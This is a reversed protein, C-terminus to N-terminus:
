KSEGSKARPQPTYNIVPADELKGSWKVKHRAYLVGADNKSDFDEGFARRYQRLKSVPANQSLIENTSGFSLVKNKPNISSLPKTELKLTKAWAELVEKLKKLTHGRSEALIEIESMEAIDEVQLNAPLTTSFLLKLSSFSYIESFDQGESIGDILAAMDTRAKVIEAIVTETPADVTSGGRSEFLRPWHMVDLNTVKDEEDTIVEYKSILGDEVCKDLDYQKMEINFDHMLVGKDDKRDYIRDIVSIQILNLMMRYDGKITSMSRRKVVEEDTSATKFTDIARKMPAPVSGCGTIWKEVTAQMKKYDDNIQKKENKDM